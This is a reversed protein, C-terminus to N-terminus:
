EYKKRLADYAEERLLPGADEDKFFDAPERGWYVGREFQAVAEITQGLAAYVMCLYLTDDLAMAPELADTPRKLRLLSRIQRHFPRVAEDDGSARIVRAKEKVLRDVDEFRRTMWALEVEWIALAAGPEALDRRIAVLKRLGDVGRGDALSAALGSWAIDRDPPSLREYGLLPESALHMARLYTGAWEKREDADEVGALFGLIDGAAEAYEGRGIRLEVGLRRVEEDASSLAELAASAVHSSASQITM